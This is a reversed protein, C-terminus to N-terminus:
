QQVGEIWAAVLAILQPDLLTPAGAPMHRAALGDVEPECESILRYLYSEEPDGPAVRQADAASSMVGILSAEADPDDLVLGGAGSEGHCSSFSCWPGIRRGWARGRITM